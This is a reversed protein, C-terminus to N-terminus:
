VTTNFMKRLWPPIETRRCVATIEYGQEVKKVSGEAIWDAIRDGQDDTVSLKTYTQCGTLFVLALLRLFKM